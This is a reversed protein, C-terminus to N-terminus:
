TAIYRRHFALFLKLRNNSTKGPSCGEGEASSGIEHRPELFIALTKRRLIILSNYQIKYGCVILTYRSTSSNIAIQAFSFFSSNQRERFEISLKKERKSFYPLQPSVVRLPPIDTFHTRTFQNHVSSDHTHYLLSFIRVIKEFSNGDFLNNPFERLCFIAYEHEARAVFVVAHPIPPPNWPHPIPRSHNQHIIRRPTPKHTRARKKRKM